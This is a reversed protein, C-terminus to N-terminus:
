GIWRAAAIPVSALGSTELVTGEPLAVTDPGPLVPEDARSLYAPYRATIALQALFAPLAVTVRLEGSRRSGSTARLFLDNQLPGDSGPRVPSVPSSPRRRAPSSRRPARTRPPSCSPASRRRPPPPPCCPSSAGPGAAEPASSWAVSSRPRPPAAPAARRGSP